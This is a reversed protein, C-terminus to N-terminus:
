AFAGEEGLRAIEEKSMGLLEGFVYDNDAGRGHFDGFVTSADSFLLPERPVPVRGVDPVTADKFYERVKLHVDEMLYQGQYIVGAPVGAEQMRHAVDDAMRDKTWAITLEDLEVANELRRLLTSFKPEQALAPQGIVKCFGSWEEDTRVAIVCWRDEGLCPYAGHPAAYSDRNGLGGRVRGNAIYELFTTGLLCMMSEFQPLEILQGEGTRRRYDLAAMIALVAHLPAVYDPTAQYPNVPPGDPFGTISALGSFAQLAPGYSSMDKYPGEMGIGPMQVYIIERNLDRVAPYDLGFKAVAKVGFNELLVDSKKILERFAKRAEPHHLDLTISKVMGGFPHFWTLPYIKGEEDRVGGARIVGPWKTSEVRITEAGHAALM